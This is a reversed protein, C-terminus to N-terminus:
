SEQDDRIDLVLRTGDPQLKSQAMVLRTLMNTLAPIVVNRRGHIECHEVWLQGTPLAQGRFIVEFKGKLQDEKSLM